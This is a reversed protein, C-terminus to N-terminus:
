ILFNAQAVKKVRNKYKEPNNTYFDPLVPKFDPNMDLAKEIDEAAMKGFYLKKIPFDNEVLFKVTEVLGEFYVFDKTFGGPQSTDTLGRKKKFTINFAREDDNLYHNVFQWVELFSESQAKITAIFNIAAIYAMPYKRPYLAHLVALGEETKIYDAFGNKKKRRFWPQQEYNARRLAHTGLEHFILGELDKEYITCPFRLKITDANISARSIFDESWVVSYKEGLGHKKLFETLKQTVTHQDLLEGRNEELEKSSFDHFTKTIIKEALEIYDHNPLGHKTLEKDTFIRSYRFQPNFSPNELFKQKEEKFNLPQLDAILGM